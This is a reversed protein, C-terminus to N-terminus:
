RKAEKRGMADLLPVACRACLLIEHWYRPDEEGAVLVTPGGPGSGPRLLTCSSFRVAYAISSSSGDTALAPEGCRDCKQSDSPNM